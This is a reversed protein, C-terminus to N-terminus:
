TNLKSIKVEYLRKKYLYYLKLVNKGYKGTNVLRDGIERVLNGAWDKGSQYKGSLGTIM